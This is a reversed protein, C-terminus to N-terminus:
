QAHEFICKKVDNRIIMYMIYLIYSSESLNNLLTDMRYKQLPDTSAILTIYNSGYVMIIDRLRTRLNVDFIAQTDKARTGTIPKVFGTHDLRERRVINYRASDDLAYGRTWTHRHTRTHPV